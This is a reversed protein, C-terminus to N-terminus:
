VMGVFLGRGRIEEMFPYKKSIETLKSKLYEGQTQANEPMKEDVIVKVAAMGIAAALPNGGFTSGHDGPRDNSAHKSSANWLKRTLLVLLLQISVM